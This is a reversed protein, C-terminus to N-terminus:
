DFLPIKKGNDLIYYNDLYKVVKMEVTNMQEIRKAKCEPHCSAIQKLLLGTDLIKNIKYRHQNEGEQKIYTLKCNPYLMGCITGIDDYINEEFNKEDVVFERSEQNLSADM